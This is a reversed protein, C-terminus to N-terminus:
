KAKKQVLSSLNEGTQLRREREWHSKMVNWNKGKSRSIDFARRDLDQSNAGSNELKRVMHINQKLQECQNWELSKDGLGGTPTDM